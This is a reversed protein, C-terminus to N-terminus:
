IDYAVSKEAGSPELVEEPSQVPSSPSPLATAKWGSRFSIVAAILNLFQVTFDNKILTSGM